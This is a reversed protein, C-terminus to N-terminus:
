DHLAELLLGALAASAVLHAYLSSRSRTEFLIGNVKYPLAVQQTCM